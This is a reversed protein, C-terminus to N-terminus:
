LSCIERCVPAYLLPAMPPGEDVFTRISGEPDALALAQELAIMARGTDGGAQFALAQLLMVEIM